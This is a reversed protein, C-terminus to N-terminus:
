RLRKEQFDRANQRGGKAKGINCPWPAPKWGPFLIPPYFHQFWQEMLIPHSHVLNPYVFGKQWFEPSNQRVLFNGTEILQFALEV